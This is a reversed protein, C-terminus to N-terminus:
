FKFLANCNRLANKKLLLFINVVAVDGSLVKNLFSVIRLNYETKNKHKHIEVSTPVVLRELQNISFANTIIKKLM